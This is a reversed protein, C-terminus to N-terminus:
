VFFFNLLNKHQCKFYIVSYCLLVLVDAFLCYISLIILYSLLATHTKRRERKLNRAFLHVFNFFFFFLSHLKQYKKGTYGTWRADKAKYAM